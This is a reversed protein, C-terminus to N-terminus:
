ILSNISFTSKVSNKHSLLIDFGQVVHFLLYTHLTLCLKMFKRENQQSYWTLEINLIFPNRKILKVSFVFIRMKIERFFVVYLAHMLSSAVQIKARKTDSAGSQPWCWIETCFSHSETETLSSRYKFEAPKFKLIKEVRKKGEIENM